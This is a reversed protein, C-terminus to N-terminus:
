APELVSNRDPTASQFKLRIKALITRRTPGLFLVWVAISSILLAAIGTEAWRLPAPGLSFRHAIWAANSTLVSVVLLSGWMRAAFVPYAEGVLTCSDKIVFHYCATADGALVGIAAAVPGLYPVLVATVITNLVASWIYAKALSRHRNTAIPIMSSAFWLAQPVAAILLIQLLRVDCNLRGRTWMAIVEPGELWIASALAVSVM